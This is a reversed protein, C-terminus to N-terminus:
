KGRREDIKRMWYDDKAIQYKLEKARDDEYEQQDSECSPCLDGEEKVKELCTKGACLIDQKAECDPCLWVGPRREIPNPCDETACVGPVVSPTKRTM